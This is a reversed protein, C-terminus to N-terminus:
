VSLSIAERYLEAHRRRIISWDLKSVAFSRCAESVRSRLTGSGLYDGILQLWAETTNAACLPFIEGGGYDGIGGINNVVPVLGCALAEVVANNASTEKLPLVLLCAQQYLDRLDDDSVNEQWRVRPSARVADLGTGAAWRREVVIDVGIEPWKELCAGLVRGAMDFDRLWKGVFLLRPMKGTSKPPPCFFHTDVGHPICVVRRGPLRVSWYEQDRGCLTVICGLKELARLDGARWCSPPYHVTGIWRKKRSGAFHLLPLHDEVAAVHCIAGKDRWQRFLFRCEAFSSNQDRSPSQIITSFIKGVARGAPNQRPQIIRANIGDEAGFRFAQTYYSSYRGYVQEDKTLVVVSIVPKM